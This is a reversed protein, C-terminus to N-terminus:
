VYRLYIVVEITGILNMLTHMAIPIYISNSKLRAWGLVLAGTFISAIGYLDYQTHLVSWLLSTIIIAGIPGMKSSEIGKFLFGRFFIEESLPAAIILALWLLPRFHATTHIGVMFEPVIPRGLFFTLTDSCAVFLVLVLLWNFLRKWGPRYLCFYEKVTVTKSIRAFLLALGIVLPTTVCTSVALFLGNTGLSQAFKGIDLDPNRSKAIVVFVICLIIVSLFYVAGIICSFGVTPWFGWPTPKQEDLHESNTHIRQVEM